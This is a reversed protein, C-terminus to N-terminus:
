PLIVDAWLPWHDSPGVHEVRGFSVTLGRAYFADLRAEYGSAHATMGSDSSVVDFGLAGMYADVVVSQDSASSASIVPVGAGIFELWNMNFDGGVLVAEPADIVAPRLEALRESSNLSPELHM